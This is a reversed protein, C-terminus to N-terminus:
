VGSMVVMLAVKLFTRNRPRLWRSGGTSIVRCKSYQGLTLSSDDTGTTILHNQGPFVVSKSITLM